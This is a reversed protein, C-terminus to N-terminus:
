IMEELYKELIPTLLNSVVTIATYIILLLTGRNFVLSRLTGFFGLKVEGTTDLRFKRRLIMSVLIIGGVILFGYQMLSVAMVKMYDVMFAADSMLSEWQDEPVALVRDYSDAVLLSPVSGFFNVLMHLIIPYIINKTKTYVWGLILGVAFTYIIQTINGHFMAFSAASVLIALPTSYKGITDIFVKRFILEEFIPGIIVVVLIIIGIPTGSALSEFEDTVEIGLKGNIFDTVSSAIMSGGLIAAQLALFIGIFEGFGLKSKESIDRRPLHKILSHFFPYGIIYMCLIQLGWVLINSYFPDALVAEYGEPGLIMSIITVIITMSISAVLLYMIISFNCRSVTKKCEYSTQKRDLTLVENNEM